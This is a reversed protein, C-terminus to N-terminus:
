VTSSTPLTLHTYSVAGGGDLGFLFIFLAVATRHKTPRPFRTHIRRSSLSHTPFTGFDSWYMETPFWLCFPFIRWGSIQWQFGSPCAVAIGLHVNNHMFRHGCNVLRLLTSCWRVVLLNCLSAPWSSASSNVTIYYRLLTTERPISVCVNRASSRYMIIRIEKM